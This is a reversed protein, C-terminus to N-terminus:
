AKAHDLTVVWATSLVTHGCWIDRVVQFIYQVEDLLALYSGHWADLRIFNQMVVVAADPLLLGAVTPRIDM